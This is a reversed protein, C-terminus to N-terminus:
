KPERYDTYLGFVTSKPGFDSFRLIHYLAMKEFCTLNSIKGKPGVGLQSTYMHSTYYPVRSKYIAPGDFYCFASFNQFNSSIISCLPAYPRIFIFLPVGWFSYFTEPMFLLKNWSDITTDYSIPIIDYLFGVFQHSKISVRFYSFILQSSGLWILKLPRMLSCLLQLIYMTQLAGKQLTYYMM